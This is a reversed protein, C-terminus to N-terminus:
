EIVPVVLGGGGRRASRESGAVVGCSDSTITYRRAAEAAVDLGLGGGSDVGGGRRCTQRLRKKAFHKGFNQGEKGTARGLNNM